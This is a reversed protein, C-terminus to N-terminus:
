GPARARHVLRGALVTAVCRGAAHAVLSAYPDGSTPVDFVAFDARVGPRLVGADALGLAAAGGVTAAAVLRRDLDDGVYGQARALDRLARVDEWLDLSPSSALSDTGVAIPDGEALHAAVPADGAGLLRNSRPCLAVATRHRRLLARDAADLHVGHAVHVDPGLGGLSALHAAPSAGCGGDALLEFGFGARRFHEAIPGTGTRVFEVEGTTEALHTHVRLGRARALALVDRFVSTGLTYLTHPSLGVARGAPAAHVTDLVAPRTREAWTAADAGVAEVFSVGALGARAPPALAARDTAVDAVATTGAALLAHVGRRTSEAWFAADCAARRRVLEIIWAGFRLGSRALDAFDTLQLHAHANVLGPTLVGPWGRTRAGPPVVADARGVAVISEGEVVVAGDPIPPEAVPLVVPAVHATIM